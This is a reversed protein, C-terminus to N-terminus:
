KVEFVKFVRVAKKLDVSYPLRDNGYFGACGGITKLPFLPYVLTDVLQLNRRATFYDTDDHYFCNKIVLNGPVPKNPPFMLNKAGIRYMYYLYGLRGKYFIVKEPYRNILDATVKKEANVIQFDGISLLISLLLSVTIAANLLIIRHRLSLWTEIIMMSVIILIFIFSLTYRVAYLTLFLGGFIQLLAHIALTYRQYPAGFPSSPTGNLLTGSQLLLLLGSFSCLFYFFASIVSYDLVIVMLISWLFTGAGAILGIKRFRRSIWWLYMPFAPFFYGAGIYSIMREFRYRIDGPLYHAHGNKLLQWGDFYYLNHLLWASNFIGAAVLFILLHQWQKRLAFHYAGAICLTGATFKTLCALGAFIGAVAADSFRDNKFMREFCAISFCALPVDYMVNQANIYLAPSVAFLLTASFRMRIGIHICLHYFFFLAGFYFPFFSWNVVPESDGFCKIIGATYLPILPPHPTAHFASSLPLDTHNWPWLLPGMSGAPPDLPNVLLQQAIYITIPSDIHFPKASFPMYLLIAICFLLFLQKKRSASDIQVSDHHKGTM